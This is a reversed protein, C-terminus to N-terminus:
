PVSNTMPLTRWSFVLSGRMLTMVPASNTNRRPGKTVFSEFRASRALSLAQQDAQASGSGPPRLECSVPLGDLGVILDVIANTLLDKHPWASPELPTLLRRNRLAGDVRVSSKQPFVPQDPLEPEILVPDPVELARLTETRNSQLFKALGEGLENAPLPMWELEATWEFPHYPLAPLSQWARGSFSRAHPLAFITPDHLTFLENSHVMTIVPAAAPRRVSPPSKDSLWYIAGLQGALVLLAFLWWHRSSGKSSM